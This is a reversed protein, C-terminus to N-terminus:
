WVIVPLPLMVARMTLMVPPSTPLVAFTPTM